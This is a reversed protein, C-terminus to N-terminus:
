WPWCPRSRPESSSASREYIEKNPAWRRETFFSLGESRFVPVSKNTVTLAILALIVLIVAGAALTSGKFLRDLIQRRPRLDSLDAPTTTM